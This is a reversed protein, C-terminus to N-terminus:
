KKLPRIGSTAILGIGVIGSVMPWFGLDIGLFCDEQCFVMASSILAIALGIVFM